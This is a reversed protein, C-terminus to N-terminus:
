KIKFWDAHCHHDCKSEVAITVFGDLVLIEPQTFRVACEYVGADGIVADDFELLSHVTDENEEISIHDGDEVVNVDDHTWSIFQLVEGGQLNEVFCEVRVRGGVVVSTQTM